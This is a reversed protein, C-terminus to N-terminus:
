PEDGKETKPASAQGMVRREFALVRRFALDDDRQPREKEALTKQRALEEQNLATLRDSTLAFLFAVVQDIEAESLELPVMGGDLFPNAEGGKNYHDMVDWLTALSGDHMYPATVGVNRLQPTRFAGIDARHRTVLFRGLEGLDTELALRDLAEASADTALEKLARRAKGEFDQHRAAVGINHFLNDTLLPTSPGVPHCTVCRAKGNFLTWGAQADASLAGAEGAVFRDFPADFFVLTREFAAIAREIDAYNLERGYAERFLPPYEPIARLAAVVEERTARGMEIPNLIPLGAQEELTAARGDWFQTRLLAANLTTPANRTGFQKRIGESQPMQDTFGRTVDHCTACSVTGDASLREDFYLKRGLAVRAPTPENGEQIFARWLAADVNPPPAHLDVLEALLPDLAKEQVDMAAQPRLAAPRTAAPADGAPAEGAGPAPAAAVLSIALAV